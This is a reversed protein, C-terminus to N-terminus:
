FPFLILHSVHKQQYIFSSELQHVLHDKSAGELGFREMVARVIGALKRLGVPSSVRKLVISGFNSVTKSWSERKIGEM